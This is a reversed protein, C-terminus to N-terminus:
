NNVKSNPLKSNETIPQLLKETIGDSNGLHVIIVDVFLFVKEEKMEITIGM